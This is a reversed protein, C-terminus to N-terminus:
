HRTDKEYVNEMRGARASIKIDFAAEPSVLCGRKTIVTPM